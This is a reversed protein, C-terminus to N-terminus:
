KKRRVTREFQTSKMQPGQLRSSLAPDQIPRPHIDFQSEGGVYYDKLAQGIKRFKEKHAARKLQSLTALLNLTL